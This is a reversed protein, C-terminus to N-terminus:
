SRTATRRSAPLLLLLGAILVSLVGGLVTFTIIWGLTSM